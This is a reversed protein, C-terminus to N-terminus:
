FVTVKLLFVLNRSFFYWFLFGPIFDLNYLIPLFYVILWILSVSLICYKFNHIICITQTNLIPIYISPILGILSPPSGLSRCRAQFALTLTPGLTFARAPVPLTHLGRGRLLTLSTSRRSTEKRIMICVIALVSVEKRGEGKGVEERKKIGKSSGGRTWNVTESIKKNSQM